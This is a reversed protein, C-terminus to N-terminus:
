ETWTDPMVNWVCWGELLRKATEGELDLGVLGWRRGTALQINTWGDRRVMREFSKESLGVDRANSYCWPPHGLKPCSPIPNFGMSRYYRGALIAEDVTMGKTRLYSEYNPYNM